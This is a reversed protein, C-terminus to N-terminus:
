KAAPRLQAAFDEALSIADRETTADAVADAPSRGALVPHPATLWTWLQWPGLGSKVLPRILSALERRPNGENDLQFTPVITRGEHKVTFM